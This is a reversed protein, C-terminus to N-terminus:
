QPTRMMHHIADDTISITVEVNELLPTAKGHVMAQSILLMAMHQTIGSPLTVAVGPLLTGPLWDQWRESSNTPDM